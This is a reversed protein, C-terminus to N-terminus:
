DRRSQEAPGPHAAYLGEAAREARYGGPEDKHSADWPWTIASPMDSGQAYTYGKQQLVQLYHDSSQFNDEHYDIIRYRFAEAQAFWICVLDSWGLDWFTRVPLSADYPVTTIRGAAEAAMIEAKYVAGEVTSITAGEYVHQFADPDTRRLLEIEAKSERSLWNNDRYSTKLVIAGPPPNLVYRVYSEDSSLYPNMTVWIQSGPKRITPLIVQWSRKTVQAAEEVWLIDISQFSKLDEVTLNQIGRFLFETGNKGRITYQLVDYFSELEMRKVAEELVQHVSEQISNQTERACLVRLPANAGLLLLAQAFNFSKVGDRGGYVVKTRGPISDKDDPPIPVCIDNLRPDGTPWLLFDLLAPFQTLGM